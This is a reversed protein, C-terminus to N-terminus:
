FRWAARAHWRPGSNGPTSSTAHLPQGVDLAGDLKWSGGLAWRLGVGAGAMRVMSAQGTAPEQTSAQAADLFLVPRLERWASGANKAQDPARWELSALAGADGSVEGDFYGRVSEAGGLSYQEASILPGSAWQGGLRGVLEGWGAALPQNLRVDWRLAAFSGSGGKRKCAFQDQQGVSGDYLPCSVQRELLSSMAFVMSLNGQIRSAGLQWQDSASFQWPVYRVPTSIEDNGSVVREQVFKVDAGLSFVTAGDQRPLLLSRRAGLTTGRGLVQTGGLSAVNSNSLTLSLTWAQDDQTPWGYNAVLVKTQEPHAPATQLTLNLSHDRQWLNEYRLNASARMPTTGKAHQNNLEVSGSFPLEDAVQLEVDVTGPLRGPKLVPQVRRRESRNLAALQAQLRNFDPVTGPAVADTQASVRNPNFYRAGLVHRAGVRGELVSLRVVGANVSQEPIDVLVTLFGAQQYAQELATRASEV